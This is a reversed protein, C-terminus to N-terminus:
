RWHLLPSVQRREPVRVQRVRWERRLWKAYELFLNGTRRFGGDRKLELGEKFDGYEVQQSIGAARTLSVSFGTALMETWYAEFSTGQEFSEKYYEQSSGPRSKEM